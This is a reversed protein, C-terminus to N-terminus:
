KMPSFEAASMWVRDVKEVIKGGEESATRFKIWETDASFEKWNKEGEERSPHELVYILTNAAAPGDQPVWYGISKMHHRAFIEITHDRFRAKLNELKGEFCHYTRLEYVKGAPKATQAQTTTSMTMALVLAAGSLFTFVHNRM